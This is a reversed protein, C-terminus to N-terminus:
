LRPTLEGRWVLSNEMLARDPFCLAPVRQWIGRQVGMEAWLAM